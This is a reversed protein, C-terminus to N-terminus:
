QASTTPVAPRLSAPQSAATPSPRTTGQRTAAGSIASTSTRHKSSSVRTVRPYIFLADNSSTQASSPADVVVYQAGRQVYYVDEYRYYPQGGITLTVYGTPLVPISLGVPPMVIIFSGGHPRYWLGRVYYYDHDRHHVMRYGSPLQPVVSGRQGAPARTVPQQPQQQHSHQPGQQYSGGQQRQDRSGGQRGSDHHQPSQQQQRGDHSDPAALTGTSLMLTTAALALLGTSSTIRNTM